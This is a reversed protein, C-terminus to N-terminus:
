NGIWHSHTTLIISSIRGDDHKEWRESVGEEKYQQIHGNCSINVTCPHHNDDRTATLLYRCNHFANRSSRLVYFPNSLVGPIVEQSRQLQNNHACWYLNQNSNRVNSTQSTGGSGHPFRIPSIDGLSCDSDDVYQKAYQARSNNSELISSHVQPGCSLPSTFNSRHTTSGVSEFSASGFFHFSAEDNHQGSSAQHSGATGEPSSGSAGISEM